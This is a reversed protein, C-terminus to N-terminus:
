FLKDVGEVRMSLVVDGPVNTVLCENWLLVLHVCWSLFNFPLIGVAREIWVSRRAERGEGQSDRGTWPSLLASM